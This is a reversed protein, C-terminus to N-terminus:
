NARTLTLTHGITNRGGLKNDRVPLNYRDQNGDMHDYSIILQKEVVEWSGIRQGKVSYTKDGNLEVLARHRDAHNYFKWTGLFEPKTDPLSEVTKPTPKGLAQQIRTVTESDNAATARRLLNELAAKYRDTATAIARERELTLQEFEQASDTAAPLQVTMFVAIFPLLFHLRRM